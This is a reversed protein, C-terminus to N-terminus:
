LANVFRKDRDEIKGRSENEARQERVEDALAEVDPTEV